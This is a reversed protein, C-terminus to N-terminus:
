WRSKPAKQLDLMAGWAVKDAPGRKFFSGVMIWAANFFLCVVLQSAREVHDLRRQQITLYHGIAGLPRREHHTKYAPARVQKSGANYLVSLSPLSTPNHYCPTHPPPTWCPHGWGAEIELGITKKGM